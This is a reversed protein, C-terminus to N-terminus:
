TENLLYFLRFAFTWCNNNLLHLEKNYSNCYANAKDILRSSSDNLSVKADSDCETPDGQQTAEKLVIDFGAAIETVKPDRYNSKSLARPARQYRIEAPVAKLTLLRQLTADNTANLPVFDWRHAIEETEWIVKVHIPLWWPGGILPSNVVFLRDSHVHSTKKPLVLVSAPRREPVNVLSNSYEFLGSFLLPASLQLWKMAADCDHHDDPKREGNCVLSM